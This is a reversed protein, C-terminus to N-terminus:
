NVPKLGWFSFWNRLEFQAYTLPQYYTLPSFFLFTIVIIIIIATIITIVKIDKKKLGEEFLYLFMLFSLILSFILPIFYHYLYLVREVMLMSAMYTVYLIFFTTIFFYLRKNAIKTKFFLVSVILNVSFFLGGLGLLWITPNGQLYLYRVGMGSKEWRYNISKNGFPWTVPLSGNEGVKCVDYKPVGKEYHAIYELQKRLTKNQGPAGIYKKDLVSKGLYIHIYYVGVFISLASLIFVSSKFCVGRIGERSPFPHTPRYYEKGLLIILLIGLPVSNLKVSVALGYLLGLIIYAPIGLIDNKPDRPTARFSANIKNVFYIFFLIFLLVFFMQIPELMAGRSHVIIANEFLYLSTFLFSLIPRGSLTYLILYILVASLTALLTPFFRVGSFSYGKPVGKIYDTTLFSQTNIESNPHILYEGLAIFLKGLPPHPEMFFVGKLYKQASAIHYNEDWFLKAPYQYNRFYTFYSVLLVIISFFIISFSRKM